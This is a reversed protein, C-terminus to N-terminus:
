SVTVTIPPADGGPSTITYTGPQLDGLDIITAKQMAIEICMANLDSTGEILSIAINFGSREVKVSDLVNCPEVGSWWTAKILIRHGDVSSELRAAPLPRPNLQGPRAVILKPQGTGPDAPAPDVPGGIGTGPNGASSGGGTVDSPTPQVPSPPASGIPSPSTTAAPAASTSCAGLTLAAALGVIALSRHLSTPTKM